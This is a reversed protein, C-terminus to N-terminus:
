EPKKTWFSKHLSLRKKVPLPISAERRGLQYGAYKVLTRLAATPLLHPAHRLLYRGESRVFRGGESSATGFTDLLWRERTHHVGTDFYRAFEERLRIPHSHVVSADAQYVVRWGAMLLRAAVVSDEALIVDVPFGGVAELASRRYAAFSNSFFAAKIGMHDRSDLTRVHSDSPYNFLRAHREIANAGDRPLQRGYVGGVSPDALTRCLARVAGPTAPVADQTMYVLIEAAAPLHRIADQRTAGHGFEAQPIVVVRYGADRALRATGDQSSSDIILIQKPDLGQADLGGRLDPWHRAANYTPIIVGIQATPTESPAATVAQDELTIM